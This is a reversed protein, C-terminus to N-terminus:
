NFSARFQLPSLKMKLKFLRSFSQSHEFGLEYAVESISMTTTLLLQKSREILKEHIHQQANLGTLSRLMDSLYNPTYNLQEALYQVTPIGNIATPKENFYANLLNELQELLLNGAAHRTLFQRKYFRKAYSLLLEIQAIIVEHSFDDIRSNLEEQIISFIASVMTREQESLHLAENSTYSFFGYQKIKAALPYGQLFDQHFVLSFGENGKYIATSGVVQNPATFVMSGEDFDYYGQGYRFKGGLKSIFSIKYLTTVYRVPLKSLNIKGDHTDLLTILPHNPGPLDLMHHIETISSLKTIKPTEDKM